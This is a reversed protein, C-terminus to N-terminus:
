NAFVQVFSKQWTASFPSPLPATLSKLSRINELASSISLARPDQLCCFTQLTMISSMSLQEHTSQGNM